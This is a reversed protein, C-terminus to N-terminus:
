AARRWPPWSRTSRRPGSSSRPGCANWCPRTPACRWSASASSRGSFQEPLPGEVHTPPKSLRWFAETPAVFVGRRDVDSADTALGYARSGM